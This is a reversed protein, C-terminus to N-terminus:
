ATSQEPQVQRYVQCLVAVALVTCFMGILRYVIGMAFGAAVFSGNQDVAGVPLGFRGTLWLLGGITVLGFLGPGSLLGLMTPIFSRVARRLTVGLGFPERVAAAPLATGFLSLALLYAPLFVLLLTGTLTDRNDVGGALQIASYVSVAATLGILAISVLFFRGIARPRVRQVQKMSSFHEGLLFYRHLLYAILLGVGLSAGTSPGSGSLFLPLGEMVAAVTVLFLWNEAFCAISKKYITLM